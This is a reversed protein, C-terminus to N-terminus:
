SQWSGICDLAAGAFVGTYEVTTDAIRPVRRAAESIATSQDPSSVDLRTRSLLALLM